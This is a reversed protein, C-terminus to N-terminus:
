SCTEVRCPVYRWIPNGTLEELHKASTLHNVGVGYRKGNFDFGFHHPVLVYGKKAKYTLDALIEVSGAETSVRVTQGQHIGLEAADEPNISLMCPTRFQYTDPNRMVGNLGADAHTGASLILPYEAPLELAAEEKEPTIRKIYEDLVDVYLHVKKDPHKIKDFSKRPDSLAIKVGERRDMVAQFVDEMMSPGPNWGARVVLERQYDSFSMFFYWLTSKYISGLKKGLTKGVIFLAAAKYSPNKAFFAMLERYYEPRTKNQAADYLSDPIPPIKNMAEALKLWIESGEKREGMPELIPQKLQCFVYPYCYQFTCFDHGEYPTTAPLIYHAYKTTETMCTDICVLLELNSYAKEQAQSDPYSRAPNTLSMIAARLHEPKKSMIEAPLVGTPYSSAVPARNTEITRWINPDNENTQPRPPAFSDFLVSGGPMLFDGCVCMLVILLSSTLTNHRGMFVGLDEHISSRRTTLIQAFTRFQDYPVQCVRLSERIDIDEFWHRVQDFDKVHEDLYAQDQWGEQLIFAILARLFLADTGPRIVIHMDSMRATESLNPDVSILMRNPDEAIERITSRARRMQHSVYSNSGWMILVDSLEEDAKAREGQIGIAKGYSWFVGLFELGAPNYYYQTGCLKMFAKAVSSEGQASPLTCGVVALSRPGHKDLIDTLKGSIETLAQEWSVRVFENGVRKLPYNLRDSHNQYYKIARGKRCCYNRTQPNDPDPRVNIIQSGEVDAELGCIQSCMNCNTKKWQGM